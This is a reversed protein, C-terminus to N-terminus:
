VDQGQRRQKSHLRRKNHPISIADGWPDIPEAVASHHYPGKWGNLDPNNVLGVLGQKDTPYAGCDAYFADLAQGFMAHITRIVNREEVEVPLTLPNSISISVRTSTATFTAAHIQFACTHESYNPEIPVDIFHYQWDKATGVATFASPKLTGIMLGEGVSTMRLASNADLMNRAEDFRGNAMHGIFRRATREPMTTWYWLIGLILPPLLLFTRLSFRFWRRNAM